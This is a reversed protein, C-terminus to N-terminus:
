PISKYMKIKPKRTKAALIAITTATLFIALITSSPFEPVVNVTGTQITANWAQPEPQHSMNYVWGEQIDIITTGIGKSKFKITFLVGNGEAFVLTLFGCAVNDIRGNVNDVYTVAFVTTGFSKMFPGEVIDADSGTRLEIIDPDWTINYIDFFDARPMNAITVNVDFDMGPADVQITSPYIAMTLEQANTKATGALILLLTFTSLLILTKRNMKEGQPM